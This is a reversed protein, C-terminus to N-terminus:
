EHTSNKIKDKLDKGAKFTPTRSAAIAITEGTQPNRGQRAARHRATFTGFGQIVIDEGDSLYEKTIALFASLANEAQQKTLKGKETTSNKVIATVLEKKNM